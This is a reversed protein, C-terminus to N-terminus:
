EDLGMLRLKNKASRGLKTRPTTEALHSLLDAGLDEENADASESYNFGIYFLDDDTVAKDEILASSLAFGTALLASVHRLIPHTSRSARGLEKQSGGKACLGAVVAVYRGKDDLMRGDHLRNLLAFAEAHRGAQQHATARALLADSHGDPDVASLLRLLPPATPWDEELARVALAVVSRRAAPKLGGAHRHLAECLRQMHAPDEVTQIEKVLAAGAGELNSLAQEAAGQAAPDDGGLHAILTRIVNPNGMRGLSELAFARAEAHRGESLKLLEETADTCLPLAKLTDVSARALTPDPDEAHTLLEMFANSTNRAAALPRRLAALAALRVPVPKKESAFPLITRVLASSRIYGLLRLARSTRGPDALWEKNKLLAAVMKRLVEVDDKEMHDIENRMAALIHEGIDRDPLFDLLRQFAQEEHNRVLINVIIRRRALPAGHLERSLAKATEKGQNALIAIAQAKIEEHPSDLLPMVHDAVKRSRVGALAELASAQLLQNDESLCKGLAEVAQSDRVRLEAMVMAAAYRKDAREHSLMRIIKKTTADM